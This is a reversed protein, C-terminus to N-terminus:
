FGTAALSYIDGRTSLRNKERQEPAAYEYTGPQGYGMEEGAVFEALEFDIVKPNWEADFGVNRPKMDGFTMGKVKHIHNLALALKHVVEGIEKVSHLGKLWENLDGNPLYEMIMYLKGGLKTALGYVTAIYPYEEVATKHAEDPINTWMFYSGGMAKNEDKAVVLRGTKKDEMLVIHEPLETAANRVEVYRAPEVKKYLYSHTIGKTGDFSIVRVGPHERIWRFNRVPEDTPTLEIDYLELGSPRIEAEKTRM